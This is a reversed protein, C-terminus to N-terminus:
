FSSELRKKVEAIKKELDKVKAKEHLAVYSDRSYELASVGFRDFGKQFSLEASKAFQEAAREYNKLAYACEGAKYLMSTSDFYNQGKRYLEASRLFIEEAEKYKGADYLTGAEKHLKVVDEKVESMDGLGHSGVIMVARVNLSERVFGLFSVWRAPPCSYLSLSWDLGAVSLGLQSFTQLCQM